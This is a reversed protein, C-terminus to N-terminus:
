QASAGRMEGGMGEGGRGSSVPVSFSTTATCKTYANACFFLRNPTLFAVPRCCQTSSQAGSSVATSVVSHSSTAHPYTRTDSHSAQHATSYPTNEKTHAHLVFVHM